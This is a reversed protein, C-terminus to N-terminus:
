YQDFPGPCDREDHLPISTGCPQCQRFDDDNGVTTEQGDLASIGSAVAPGLYGDADDSTLPTTSLWTGRVGANRLFTVRCLLFQAM